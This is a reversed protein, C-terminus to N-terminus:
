GRSHAVLVTEDVGPNRLAVLGLGAFFLVSGRGFRRSGGRSCCLDVEGSAVVVLADAWEADVYPLQDGAPIVVERRRFVTPLGTRAGSSM